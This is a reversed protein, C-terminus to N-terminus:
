TQSDQERLFRVYGFHFMVMFTISLLIFSDVNMRKNQCIFPPELDKNNKKLVSSSNERRLAYADLHFFIGKSYALHQGLSQNVFCFLSKGM